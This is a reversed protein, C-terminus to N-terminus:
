SKHTLKAERGEGPGDVPEVPETEVSDRRHQVLMVPDVHPEAPVVVLHSSITTIVPSASLGVIELSM